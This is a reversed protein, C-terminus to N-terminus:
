EGSVLPFIGVIGDKANVGDYSLEIVGDHRLVAQIRNVTPTWSFAQIGGNGENLTWTVVARDALEKAYRPGSFQVRTFAAIGPVMNIFTTGVTQMMAYREMVLGGRGGSGGRGTAAGTVAAGGEPADFTIQANSGVNFSNWTKGSFPIRLNRLTVTNGQLASGFEPDWRLPVNEVRYGGPQPTFRLTRRDLDFRHEAALVGEDVEIHILNGMTTVKGIPRGQPRRAALPSTIGVALVVVLPVARARRTM